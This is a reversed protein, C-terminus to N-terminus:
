AYEIQPKIVLVFPNEFGTEQDLIDKLADVAKPYIVGNHEYEWFNGNKIPTFLDAVKGEEALSVKGINVWRNEYRSVLETDDGNTDFVYSDLPKNKKYVIYRAGDFVSPNAHTATVPADVVIVQKGNFELEKTKM